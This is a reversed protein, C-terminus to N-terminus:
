STKGAAEHLPELFEMKKKKRAEIRERNLNFKKKLLENCAEVDAIEDELCEVNPKGTTPDIGAWGQITTRAIISVEEGLEEVTKILYKVEVPDTIPHWPTWVDVYPLPQINKVLRRTEKKMTDTSEDIIDQLFRSESKDRERQLRWREWWASIRSHISKM